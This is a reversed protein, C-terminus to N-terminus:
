GTFIHALAQGAIREITGDHQIREAVDETTKWGADHHVTTQTDEGQVWKAYSVRNTVQATMGQSQYSWGQGLQGTRRYPRGKPPRQPPYKRIRGNAEIAVALVIAQLAGSLRLPNLQQMAADLGTVIVDSM